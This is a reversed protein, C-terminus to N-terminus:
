DNIHVPSWVGPDKAHPQLDPSWIDPDKADPQLDPSWVCPDKADPLRSVGSVPYLLPALRWPGQRRTRTCVISAKESTTKDKKVQLRSYCVYM